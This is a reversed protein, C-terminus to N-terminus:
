LCQLFISIVLCGLLLGPLSIVNWIQLKPPKAISENDLTGFVPFERCGELYNPADEIQANGNCLVSDRINSQSIPLVYSEGIVWGAKLAIFLNPPKPLKLRHSQSSWCGLTDPTASVSTEDCSSSWMGISACVPVPSASSVVLRCHWQCQLLTCQTIQRVILTKEINVRKNSRIRSEV